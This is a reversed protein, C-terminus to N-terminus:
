FIMSLELFTNWNAMAGDEQGAPSGLLFLRPLDRWAKVTPGVLSFFDMLMKKLKQVEWQQQWLLSCNLKMDKSEQWKMNLKKVRNLKLKIYVWGTAGM